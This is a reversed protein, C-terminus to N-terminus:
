LFYRSVFFACAITVWGVVGEWIEVIRVRARAWVVSRAMAAAPWEVAPVLEEQPPRTISRECV